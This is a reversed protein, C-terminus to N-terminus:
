CILNQQECLNVPRRKLPSNSLTSIAGDQKFCIFEIKNANMNFGIGRAAHELRHLLWETQASTNALLAQNDTYDIDIMTKAPYLRSRKKQIFSNEKILDILTQLIYDLCIIFVYPPLSGSLLVEAVIDFFDPSCVIAKTNQPCDKSLSYALLIQEM